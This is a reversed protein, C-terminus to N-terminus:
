QSQGTRTASPISLLRSLAGGIFEIFDTAMDSQFRAEDKSGLLLYSNADNSEIKILAISGCDKLSEESFYETLSVPIRGVYVNLNIIDKNMKALDAADLYQTFPLDSASGDTPMLMQIQDLGFQGRMQSDLSTLLESINLAQMLDLTLLQMKKLLDHNAAANAALEKVTNKSTKQDQRLVQVQREILSIAGSTEHPFNIQTFLEPHELFFDPNALLYDIVEQPILTKEATKNM